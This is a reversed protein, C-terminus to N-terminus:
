YSLLEPDAGPRRRKPVSKPVGSCGGAEGVCRAQEIEIDPHDPFAPGDLGSGNTYRKKAGVPYLGLKAGRTIGAVLTEALRKAM